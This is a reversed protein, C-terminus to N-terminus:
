FHSFITDGLVFLYLKEVTLGVYMIRTDNSLDSGLPYIYM